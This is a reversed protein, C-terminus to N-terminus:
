SNVKVGYKDMETGCEVCTWGGWLVQRRNTPKRIKSVVKKCNPCSVEKLNIGMKGKKPWFKLVLKFSIFGIVSTVIIITLDNM